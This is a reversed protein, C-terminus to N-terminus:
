EQMAEAYLVDAFRFVLYPSGAIIQVGDPIGLEPKGGAPAPRGIWTVGRSADLSVSLQGGSRTFSVIRTGQSVIKVDFVGNLKTSLERVHRGDPTMYERSDDKGDENFDWSKVPSPGYSERYDPIGDGNTDVAEEALRGDKWTETVQFVGDHLLSRTGRQPMGHSYWVRHDLVGDGTSSEAMFVRQGGSLDIRRTVTVGDSANQVLQFAGRRLLDAAPVTFRAAIRPATGPLIAAFDPRLFACQITYPVLSYTGEGPLEATELSPYRSFTLRTVSGTSASIELSVPLGGKFEATYQAFGDQAPERVWRVIAGNEFTWRDEWVGDSDSDLDRNGTYRALEGRLRATLDASGKLADTARVVLDQRSLGSQSIFQDLYKRRQGVSVAEMGLVASLPDGGGAALYQNIEAIKRVRDIELGASALLLDPSAPHLLLGTRVLAAAEANRGQRQLLRAGLLRLGDSQPFRRLADTAAALAASAAGARDYARVLLIFNQPDEPRLATLGEAAKRAEALQGTRILLSTLLQRAAAPDTRSWTASGLAARLHEMAARTSPRDAAELRASMYLAESYGPALTLASATMSAARSADGSALLFDAQALFADAQAQSAAATDTAQGALPHAATVALALFACATTFIRSHIM